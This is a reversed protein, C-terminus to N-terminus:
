PQPCAAATVSPCEVPTKYVILSTAVCALSLGLAVWVLTTDALSTWLAYVLVGGLLAVIVPELVTSLFPALVLVSVLLILLVEYRGAGRVHM